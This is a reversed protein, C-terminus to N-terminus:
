GYLLKYKLKPLYEFNDFFSVHVEPTRLERGKFADFLAINGVQIVQIKVREFQKDYSVIKVVAKDWARRYYAGKVIKM